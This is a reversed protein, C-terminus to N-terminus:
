IISNENDITRNNALKKRIDECIVPIFVEIFSKSGIFERKINIVANNKGRGNFCGKTNEM